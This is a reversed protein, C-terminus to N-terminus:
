KVGWQKRFRKCLNYHTPTRAERPYRLIFNAEAYQAPTPKYVSM